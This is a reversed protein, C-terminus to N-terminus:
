EDRCGADDHGADAAARVLLVSVNREISSPFTSRHDIRVLIRRDADNNRRVVLLRDEPGVQTTQQVTRCGALEVHDDHGVGATVAGGPDGPFRADAHDLRRDAALGVRQAQTVLRAPRKGPDIEVGVDLQRGRRHAGQRLRTGLGAHQGARRHRLQVHGADAPQQPAHVVDVILEDLGVARQRADADVDEGLGPVGPDERHRLHDGVVFPDM